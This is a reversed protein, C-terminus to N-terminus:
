KAVEAIQQAIAGMWYNYNKVNKFGLEEFIKVLEKQEPFYKNSEPLYKFSNFEGRHFVLKGLIPSINYFYSYYIIKFLFNSPKGQDINVVFGNSKVVRQMELLGNKLSELNRLGFSIIAVDFSDDEFPLNLADGKIFKINKIDKAKIKAVELMKESADLAIIQSDPYEKAIKVAIDGSGTCVDLVKANEPFPMKDIAKQDISKKTGFSLLVTTDDYKKALNDFIERNYESWTNSQFYKKFGMDEILKLKTEDDHKKM